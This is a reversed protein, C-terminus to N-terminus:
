TAIPEHVLEEYVSRIFTAEINFPFLTLLFTLKIIAGPLEDITLISDSFPANLSRMEEPALIKSAAQPGQIPIPWAGFLPAIDSLVNLRLKLPRHPVM